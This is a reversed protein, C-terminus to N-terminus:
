PHLIPNLEQDTLHLAPHVMAEQETHPTQACCHRYKCTCLRSICHVEDPMTNGLTRPTLSLDPHHLVIHSLLSKGHPASNQETRHYSHVQTRLPNSISLVGANLTADPDWWPDSGQVMPLSQARGVMVPYTIFRAVHM